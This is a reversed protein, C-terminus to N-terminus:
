RKKILEDSTEYSFYKRELDVFYEQQTIDILERSINEREM